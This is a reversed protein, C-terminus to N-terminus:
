SPARRRVSIQRHTSDGSPQRLSIEWRRSPLLERAREPWEVLCIGEGDFFEECGTSRLGQPTDIRYFDFHYIMVEKGRYQHQITFTPSSVADTAGLGAVVGKIMTTKGSGLDGFFAVVDGPRLFGALTRGLQMTEEASRTEIEIEGREQLALRLSDIVTLHIKRCDRTKPIANIIASKLVCYLIWFSPLVL